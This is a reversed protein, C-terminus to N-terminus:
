GTAQLDGYFCCHATHVESENCCFVTSLTYFRPDLDAIAPAPNFLTKVAFSHSLPEISIVFICVKLKQITLHLTHPQHTELSPFASPQCKWVWWVFDDILGCICFPKPDWDEHCGLILGKKYGNGRNKLKWSGSWPCADYKPHAYTM